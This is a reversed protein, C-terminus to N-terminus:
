VVFAYPTTSKYIWIKQVEASGPPSHDAERWPRKVVKSLAGPIWQIPPQNSVSGTQVVHLFFIRARVPVGVGVGRDLGYGTAIGVVSSILFLSLKAKGLRWFFEPITNSSALV